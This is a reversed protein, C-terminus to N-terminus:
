LETLEVKATNIIYVIDEQNWEERLQIGVRKGRSLGRLNKKKKEGEHEGKIKM